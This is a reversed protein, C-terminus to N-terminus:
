TPHEQDAATVSRYDSNLTHANLLMPENSVIIIMGKWDYVLKAHMSSPMM